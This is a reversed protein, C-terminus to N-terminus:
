SKPQGGPYKPCLPTHTLQGRFQRSQRRECFWMEKREQLYHWFSYVTLFLTHTFDQLM